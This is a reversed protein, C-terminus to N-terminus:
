ASQAANVRNIWGALFKQQTPDAAAIQRYHARQLMCYTVLLEAPDAANIAALTQPGMVGDAPFVECAKQLLEVAMGRKGQGEENIAFNMLANAIPQADIQAIMLPVVYEVDYEEEALVLATAADMSADYFGEAALEPHYQAALGFRTLGGRDGPTNTITGALTEDEARLALDLAIKPDSM